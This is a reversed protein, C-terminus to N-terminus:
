SYTCKPVWFSRQASLSWPIVLAWPVFIFDFVWIDVLAVFHRIVAININFAPRYMKFQMCFADLIKDRTKFQDLRTELKRECRSCSTKHFTSAFQSFQSRVRRDMDSETWATRPKQIKFTESRFNDESEKDFQFRHHGGACGRLFVFEILTMEKGREREREKMARADRTTMTALYLTAGVAVHTILTCTKRSILPEKWCRGLCDSSWGTAVAFHCWVASWWGRVVALHHKQSLTSLFSTNLSAASFPQQCLSSRFGAPFPQQLLFSLFAAAFPQQLISSLSAASLPQQSLSRLIAFPQQGSLVTASFPLQSRNSLFAASFPQQFLGRFFTTAWFHQQSLSSFAASFLQQPLSSRCAAAFPQQSLSSVSFPQQSLSNLFPAKMIIFFIRWLSLQNSHTSHIKTSWIKWISNNQDKFRSVFCRPNIM